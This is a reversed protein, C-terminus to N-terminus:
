NMTLPPYDPYVERRVPSSERLPSRSKLPSTRRSYKVEEEDMKRRLPSKGRSRM